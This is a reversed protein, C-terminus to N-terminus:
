AFSYMHQKFEVRHPEGCRLKLGAASYPMSRPPLAPLLCPWTLFRSSSFLLLPSTLPQLPTAHSASAAAYAGDSWGERPPFPFFLSHNHSEGCAPPSACPSFPIAHLHPANGRATNGIRVRWCPYSTHCISRSKRPLQCFRPCLPSYIEKGCKNVLFFRNPCLQCRAAARPGIM